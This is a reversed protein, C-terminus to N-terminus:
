SFRDVRQYTSAINMGHDSDTGRALPNAGTLADTDGSSRMVIGDHRQSCIKGGALSGM